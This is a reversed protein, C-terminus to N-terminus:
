ITSPKIAYIQSLEQANKNVEFAKLVPRAPLQVTKIGTSPGCHVIMIGVIILLCLSRM